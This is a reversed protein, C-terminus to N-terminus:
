ALQTLGSRPSVSLGLVGAFGRHNVASAVWEPTEGLDLTPALYSTGEVGSGAGRRYLDLKAGFVAGRSTSIGAGRDVGTARGM